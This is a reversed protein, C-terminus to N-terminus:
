NRRQIVVFAASALLLMLAILGGTRLTDVAVPPAAVFAGLTINGPGSITNTFPGFDSNGFGTTVIIYTRNADLPVGLMDSTGIGGLGDDNGGVCNAFQNTPDFSDRYLFIYGDFGNQVSSIDYSGATNVYFQQTSYPTATGVGSLSTGCNTASSAVPRRWTPGGTTNGTYSITAEPSAIRTGQLPVSKAAYEDAFVATSCLLATSLLLTAHTITPM